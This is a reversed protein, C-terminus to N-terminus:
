SAAEKLRRSVGRWFDAADQQTTDPHDAFAVLSAFNRRAVEAAMADALLM